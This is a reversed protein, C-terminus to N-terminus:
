SRKKLEGLIAMKYNKIEKIQNKSIVRCGISKKFSIIEHTINTFELDRRTRMIEDLFKAVGDKSIYDHFAIIGGDQLKPWWAEFDSKVSEYDHSGDIFILGIDDNLNKSATISDMVLPKILHGVNRIRMNETFENLTNIPEKSRKQQEISGMHHDVSYICGKGRKVLGCAFYFTSKGKWSGIEVINGKPLNMAFNFLMEGEASTLWGEIGEVLQHIQDIGLKSIDIMRNNIIDKSHQLEVLENFRKEKTLKDVKNNFKASRAKPHESYPFVMIFDLNLQDIFEKTQEYDEDSEGPFGAIFHSGFFVKPNYIRIGRIAELVDEMKYPRNMDRLIKNSGSQIPTNIIIKHYNNMNEIFLKHIEEKYKIIWQVNFEQLYLNINKFSTILKLLEVVNTGIDMGYAGLDGGTFFFKNYGLNIGKIMEKKIEELPKSKLDKTSRKIVCYSCNSKCGWCVRIKYENKAAVYEELINSRYEPNPVPYEMNDFFSINQEPIEKIKVNFNLISDVQELNRPGFAYEINNQELFEPEIEPLCGSLIFISNENKNEIINKIKKNSLDSFESNFACSVFFLISADDINEYKTEHIYNNNLMFQIIREADLKRKECGIFDIYFKNM